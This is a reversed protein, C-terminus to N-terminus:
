LIIIMNTKTYEINPITELPLNIIMNTKYYKINNSLALNNFKIKDAIPLRTNSKQQPELFLSENPLSSVPLPNNSNDFKFKINEVRELHKNNNEINKKDEEDQLKQRKLLADIQDKM